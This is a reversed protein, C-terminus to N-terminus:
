RHYVTHILRFTCQNMRNKIGAATGHSLAGPDHHQYVARDLQCPRQPPRGQRGLLDDASSRCLGAAPIGALANAAAGAAPKEM